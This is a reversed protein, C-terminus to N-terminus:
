RSRIENLNLGIVIRADAAPAVHCPRRTNEKLAHRTGCSTGSFAAKKPPMGEPAAEFM